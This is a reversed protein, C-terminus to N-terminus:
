WGGAPWCLCPSWRGRCRSGTLKKVTVPGQATARTDSLCSVREYVLVESPVVDFLFTRLAPVFGLTSGGNQFMDMFLNYTSERLSELVGRCKAQRGWGESMTEGAEESKAQTLRSIIV